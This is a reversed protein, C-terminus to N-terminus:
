AWGVDAVVVTSTPPIRVGDSARTPGNAVAAM